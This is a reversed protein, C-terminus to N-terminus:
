MRAPEDCKAAPQPCCASLPQGGGSEVGMRSPQVKGALQLPGLGSLQMGGRGQPVGAVGGDGGEGVGDKAQHCSHGLFLLHGKPVRSQGQGARPAGQKWVLAPEEARKEWKQM